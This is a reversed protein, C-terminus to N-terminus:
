RPAPTHPAVRGRLRVADGLWFSKPFRTTLKPRVRVEIESVARAYTDDGAYAIRYTTNVAPGAKWVFRGAADTTVTEVPVFDAEDVRRRSVAAAALSPAVGAAALALLLAVGLIM